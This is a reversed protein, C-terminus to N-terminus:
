QGLGSESEPRRWQQATVYCMNLQKKLEVSKVTQRRAEVSKRRTVDLSRPMNHACDPMSREYEVHGSARLTKELDADAAM